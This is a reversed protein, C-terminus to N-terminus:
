VLGALTLIKDILYKYKTYPRPSHIDVYRHSRLGKISFAMNTSRDIRPLVTHGLLVCDRGFLPWENLYKYLMKEDTFWGHGTDHWEIMLQQMQEITNVKFIDYFTKGLAANYCMPYQTARIGYAANRYVVFKKQSLHAISKNFYDAQLPIMDLDSILCFDDQFLCPLLLRITQAQYATSLGEIPRIYIIDGYTQDIETDAPGIFALTPRADM